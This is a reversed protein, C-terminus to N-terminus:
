AILRPAIDAIPSDSIARDGYDFTSQRRRERCGRDEAAKFGRAGMRSRFEGVTIGQWSGHSSNEPDVETM